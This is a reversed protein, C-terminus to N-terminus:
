RLTGNAIPAEFIISQNGATIPEDKYTLVGDKVKLDLKKFEKVYDMAPKPNVKMGRANLQTGLEVDNNILLLSVVPADKDGNDAVVVMGESVVDKFKAPKLNLLLAIKKGILQEKTHTAKLGAVVKRQVGKGIEAKLIYLHDAKPHEEVERIVAVQLDIPFEGQVTGAFKERYVDLDKKEIKQILPEINKSIEHGAKILFEFCPTYKSPACNLQEHIKGTIAPLYPEFVTALLKIVNVLVALITGCRAKDTKELAWPKNEQMYQNGLKSITMALKLGDKINVKELAELYQQYLNDVEKIFVEDSEQLQIEPIRCDFSSVVSKLVRNVFNGFNNLLESTKFGFDDWSFTSDQNEPRNSLLYFRWVDAPVGTGQANDGFVGTNRSKSFKGTEYNLYETTSLNHLLTYPDDSGILSSPFIVTHFPVNDKGMFQVLQVNEPNKWWKEWEPTYEKTISLYGIPADFWVYFVKEKFEELPVPTGWKLDRTICRPKLEGKVWSNTIKQSNETWIKSTKDVFADLRQQIKPLDLFIHKTTRLIPTTGDLKCRPSILETPNLMKTCRDCQDGRADEFQCHPCIGEVYRDALFMPCKECYLQEVDESFTLQREYLKLFIDQTIETQSQTSTRGFKDFGINFWQYIDRHIAHYRDCIQQPTCKEQLAKTETATGYEDTGCIYICNYDRLRCYRAYVDASLVCGIINGLHPVNNVYPLASTILINRRGQEPLVVHNPPNSM